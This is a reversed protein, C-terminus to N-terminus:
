HSTSDLADPGGASLYEEDSLTGPDEGPDGGRRRDAKDHEPPHDPGADARRSSEAAPPSEQEPRRQPPVEDAPRATGIPRTTGM